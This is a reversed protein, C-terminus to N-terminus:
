LLFRIPINIQMIFREVIEPIYFLHLPANRYPYTRRIHM